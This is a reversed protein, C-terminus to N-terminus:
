DKIINKINNLVKLGLPLYSYVGNSNKLIMGSKILLKSSITDEDKPYERRTLFFSDSLKM